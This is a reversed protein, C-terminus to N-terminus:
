WDWWLELVEDRASEGGRHVYVQRVAQGFREADVLIFSKKAGGDVRARLPGYAWDYLHANDFTAETTNLDEHAIGGRYVAVSYGNALVTDGGFRWRQLFCGGCFDAVRAMQDVPASHWTKWHHLSLPWRGSEYFGSTDGRLDLQNLGPMITLRTDTQAYICNKLLADGQGTNGEALCKDIHPVVQRVLPMSMFVGAGGYALLGHQEIAWMSDSLGGLYAPATHDYNDLAESLTFLSPFFTDDDIVCIWKTEENAHALLDGLVTFHQQNVDLGDRMPRAVILEVGHSEFLAVLQALDSEREAADVVVAVLRAGSNALWHSLQPISDVLRDFSTAVGFLLEPYQQAPFPSPVQVEVPDCPMEERVRCDGELDVDQSRGLVSDPVDAVDTRDVGDNRIARLCQRHFVIDNQLGYREHKLYALDLPCGADSTLKGFPLNSQNFFLVDSHIKDRWTFLFAIFFILFVVLLIRRPLGSSWRSALMM